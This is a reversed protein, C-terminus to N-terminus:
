PDLFEVESSVEADRSDTITLFWLRPKKEPLKARIRNGRVSAPKSKWTRDKNPGQDFTYHLRARTLRTKSSGRATIINNKRNIKSIKPLPTGNKLYQDFFLEIEKTGWGVGHGHPWYPFIRYYKPGEPLRYTKAFTDLPYHPDNTGTLFFMPLKARGVYQSPDWLRVWKDRKEKSMKDLFVSKWTGNEHLFGCGYVPAAAAFRDDVGVVIDALYGGWSIGLIGTKKPNVEPLSRVLSHALVVNAVAHYPWQDSIPTDIEKFTNNDDHRPRGEPLPTRMNWAKVDRIIRERKVGDPDTRVVRGPQCGDLDMAIAAYGKGAWHEAWRNFATGGGGHVLVIAPLNKDKSADGALTGPTAYYAFVETPKNKYNPGEYVLSWVRSDRDRWTYKPVRYLESPTWPGVKASTHDAPPAIQAYCATALLLFM